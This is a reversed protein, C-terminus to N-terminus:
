KNTKVAQLILELLTKGTIADVTSLDTDASRALLKAIPIPIFLYASRQCCSPNGTQHCCSPEEIHIRPTSDCPASDATASTSTVSPPGPVRVEQINSPVGDLQDSKCGIPFAYAINSGVPLAIHDVLKAQAVGGNTPYVNILGHHPVVRYGRSDAVYHTSYRKGQLKHGYCGLRIGHALTVTHHFQENEKLEVGYRHEGGPAVKTAMYSQEHVGVNSSGIEEAVQLGSVVGVLLM